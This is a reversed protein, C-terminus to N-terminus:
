DGVYRHPHRLSIFRISAVSLKYAKVHSHVRSPVQPPAFGGGSPRSSGSWNTTHTHTHANAPSHSLCTTRGRLASDTEEAPPVAPTSPPTRAPERKGGRLLHQERRRHRRQCQQEEPLDSRTRREM